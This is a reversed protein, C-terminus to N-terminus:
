IEGCKECLLDGTGAGLKLIVTLLFGTGISSCRVV